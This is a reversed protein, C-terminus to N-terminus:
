GRLRLEQLIASVFEFLQSFLVYLIYGTLVFLAMTFLTLVISKVTESLTYNHIEKVMIFLMLGTWFWVANVALSHIFAENLTLLNSLLAIPLAFLAFPFLSYATGIVVDRWRGEGDNISSILYNAVNWLGIALLVYLAETEIRIETPSAYANFPFGTVYLSLIRVVVVWGYILLAFAWSGRQRTKIYYFSDAPQKIFRFMFLFDDVLGYPRGQTTARQTIAQEPTAARRIRARVPEFWGFRRDLRKVGGQAVWVGLVVMLATPLYRQLIANRLEWFAQSYGDRDEATRYAALAAAYDRERFHADAIAQYAMIFSGNYTLVQDFHPKAESYFGGMYLQVGDHVKRAFATTQYAVIANKDKDLVYLFEGHRGIGTPNSLTGLRQEGADKAGFTFLLTGNTDFEDILGEADVATMLGNASVHVDRYSNLGFVDGLLNKGAINFKRISQRASTGATVTYIMGQQDIALNSPSAAENRMFQELQERTLFTRQLIMRLSMEAPNAGFYGIFNGATNMLALGNVSGEIVIYLNKRADVAIKRPLFERNRGFLPEAPRGFRNRLEGDRDFIFIENLKADAVYVTGEDDAFVGTPGGLVGKGYEAAVEFDQLKVVRGNGTDAIYMAGDPTIFLDEAGSIPLDIENVPRYADQTMYLRGGPGLAWTTYPADARVSIPGAALILAVALLISLRALAKM